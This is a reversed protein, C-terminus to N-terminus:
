RSGGSGHELSRLDALSPSMGDDEDDTSPPEVAQFEGTQSDDAAIPM